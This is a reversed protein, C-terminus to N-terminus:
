VEVIQGPKIAALGALALPVVPSIDSIDNSRARMILVAIKREALNQQYRINKDITVLADFLPEAAALLESNKYGEFGAERVTRCDHGAAAFLFKVQSACV